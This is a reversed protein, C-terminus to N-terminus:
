WPTSFVRWLRKQYPSPFEAISCDKLEPRKVVRFFFARQGFLHTSNRHICVNTGITRTVECSDEINNIRAQHNFDIAGGECMKFIQLERYMDIPIINAEQPPPLRLGHNFRLARKLMREMIKTNAQM